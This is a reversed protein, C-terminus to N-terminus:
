TVMQAVVSASLSSGCYSPEGPMIDVSRYERYMISGGAATAWRNIEYVQISGAPLRTEPASPQEWLVAGNADTLRAAGRWGGRDGNNHVEISRIFVEGLNIDGTNAAIFADMPADFCDAENKVWSNVGIWQWTNPRVTTPGPPPLYYALATGSMGMSIVAGLAVAIM